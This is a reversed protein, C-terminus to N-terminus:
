VQNITGFDRRQLWEPFGDGMGRGAWNRTIRAVFLRDGPKMKAGLLDRVQRPSITTELLWAGDLRNSWNGLSKLEQVFDPNDETLSFCILMMM